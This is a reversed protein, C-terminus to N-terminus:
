LLFCFVVVALFGLFMYLAYHRVQGTQVTRVVEGSMDVFEGTWNVARDIVGQDAGKWLVRSIGELPRIITAAYLEDIFWKGQFLRSLAPVARYLQGPITHLKLYFAFALALGLLGTWSNILASLVSEHAHGAGVPITNGLYERLSDQLYFGGGFSLLALVLLPITMFLPSEHPTHHHSGGHTHDHGTDHNHAHDHAHDHSHDDAHTAGGRYEGFFTMVLSRGMYFATLFATAKALYLIWNGVEILYPNHDHALAELIAHKSQYGAFPFVGAIAITAILYTLFTVPMYRRLGGMKRMDQEHHCGHIVSGAGLFLCAKFFAHTVVHFLAVWYAGASAAMFMFGLQSVTSYALVKKIDNQVLATTAAVFATLIAVVAVVAMAEPSASFVGNLRAMLYVGATVM